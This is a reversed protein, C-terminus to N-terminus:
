LGSKETEGPNRQFDAHIVSRLRGLAFCKFRLVFSTLAKEYEVNVALPRRVLPGHYPFKTNERCSKTRLYIKNTQSFSKKM